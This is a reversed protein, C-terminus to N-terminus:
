LAALRRMVLAVLDRALAPSLPEFLLDVTDRIRVPVGELCRRCEADLEAEIEGRVLVGGVSPSVANLLLAIPDSTKASATDPAIPVGRPVGATGTVEAEAGAIDEVTVIRAGLEDELPNALVLQDAIM